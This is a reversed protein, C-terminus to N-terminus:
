REKQPFAEALSVRRNPLNEFLCRAERVSVRETLGDAENPWSSRTHLFYNNDASRFLYSNRGRREWGRGDWYDDGALLVASMMLRLDHSEEPIQTLPEM